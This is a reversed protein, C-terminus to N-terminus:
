DGVEMRRGDMSVWVIADMVSDASFIGSKGIVQELSYFDFLAYCDNYAIVVQKSEPRMDLAIRRLHSAHEAPLARLWKLLLPDDSKHCIFTPERYYTRAFLNRSARTVQLQAPPRYDSTISVEEADTTFVYDYISDYLEQPLGQLLQGLQPSETQPPM